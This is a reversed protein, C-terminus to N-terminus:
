YNINVFRFIALVTSLLMCITYVNNTNYREFVHAFLCLIFWVKTGVKSLFWLKQQPFILYFIFLYEIGLPIVILRVYTWWFVFNIILTHASSTLQLVYFHNVKLLCYKDFTKLRNQLVLIWVKETFYM